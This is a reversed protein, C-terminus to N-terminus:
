FLSLQKPTAKLANEFKLLWEKKDIGGAYGTLEGSAGIVRHCPVVILFPNKGCANAVARIGSEAGLGKALQTYSLTKGKEIEAIRKWVGQQFETGREELHLDFQSRKGEFYENLQDICRGVEKPMFRYSEETEAESVFKISFITDANGSIELLGAPSNFYEKTM